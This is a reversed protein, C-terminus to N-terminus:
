ALGAKFAKLVKGTPSAFLAGINDVNATAKAVVRTRGSDPTLTVLISGWVTAKHYDGALQWLNANSSVNSFGSLVLARQCREFWAGRDGDLVFSEDASKRIAL